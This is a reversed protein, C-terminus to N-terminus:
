PSARERGPGTWRRRPSRTPRWSMTGTQGCAPFGTASEGQGQLQHVRDAQQHSHLLRLRQEGRDGGAPLAPGRRLQDGRPVRRHLHGRRGRVGARGAARGAAQVFPHGRGHGAGHRGSALDPRHVRAGHRRFSHEARPGPHTLRGQGHIAAPDRAPHRGAGAHLRSQPDASLPRRGQLPGARLRLGGRRGGPGPLPVTGRGGQDAPVSQGAAGGALPHAAHLLVARAASRPDARSWRGTSAAVAGRAAM